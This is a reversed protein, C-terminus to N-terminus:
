ILHWITYAVIYYRSVQYSLCSLLLGSVNRTMSHKWSEGICHKWFEITYQIMEQFDQYSSNIRPVDCSIAVFQWSLFSICTRRMSFCLVCILIIAFCINLMHSFLYAATDRTFNLYIVAMTSSRPSEKWAM